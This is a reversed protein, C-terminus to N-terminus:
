RKTNSVQEVRRVLYTNDRRPSDIYEDLNCAFDFSPKSSHVGARESVVM